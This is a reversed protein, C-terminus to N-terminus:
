VRYYGQASGGNRSEAWRLKRAYYDFTQEYFGGTPENTENVTGSTRRKAMEADDPWVLPLGSSAALIQAQAAREVSLGMLLAQATSKGVFTIGHNGLFIAYAAGLVKALDQGLAPTNVLEASGKHHPVATAFRSGDLTLPKLVENTASFIGSYFPHTHAAVTIEPRALFIESHLPWESHPRGAGELQKGSFELLIFDNHDSVEGLGIGRRKMWFGRGDPDRLSL